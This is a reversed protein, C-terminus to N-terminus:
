TSIYWFTTAASRSKTAHTTDQFTAAASNTFRPIDNEDIDVRVHRPGRDGLVILAQAPPTGVYEGPRVNVKLVDWYAAMAQTDAFRPATVQHRALEIQAQELQSEAQAM